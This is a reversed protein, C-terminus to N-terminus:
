GHVGSIKKMAATANVTFRQSTRGTREESPSATM